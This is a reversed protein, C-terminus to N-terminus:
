FENHYKNFYDVIGIEDWSTRNTSTSNPALMGEVADVYMSSSFDQGQYMTEWEDPTLVEKINLQKLALNDFSITKRRRGDYYKRLRYICSTIEKKWETLDPINYDKARGFQKLGLFLINRYYTDDKLMKIVEELSTIGIIVHWVINDPTPTGRSLSYGEIEPFEVHKDVSIGITNVVTLIKRWAEPVTKEEFRKIRSIYDQHEELDEYRVTIRPNFGRGNAWTILEATEEPCEFVNGGGIALEIGVKPLQELKEITKELNLIKGTPTSNEHCFPCGRSCKNTIKLDISDPFAPVLEEGIRLARKTRQGLHNINVVYNGNIYTGPSFRNYNISGFM